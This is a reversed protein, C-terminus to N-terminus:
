FQFTKHFHPTSISSFQEFRVGNFRYLGADSGIWIYGKRDQFTCYVENSPGGNEISYSFYNPYQGFTFFSHCVIFFLCIWSRSM